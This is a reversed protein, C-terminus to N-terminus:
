LEKVDNPRFGWAFTNGVGLSLKISGIGAAAFTKALVRKLRDPAPSLRLWYKISYRNKFRFAGCDQFQSSSLLELISRRSFLQMHEIDVIPSNRGLLTNVLSRRDHTVSVFVGGPRLLRFCADSVVKPDLVHELTMFCAILDFSAPAYDQEDFIGHLINLTTEGGQIAAKSPEIGMPKAFGLNKLQELFAGNGAGIELATDRGVSARLVKRLALSYSRAADEAEEGSDFDAQHYSTHLTAEDPPSPVYALDCSPCIVMRHSMFEPPKRSAFTLASVKNEDINHPLFERGGESSANCIPCTRM